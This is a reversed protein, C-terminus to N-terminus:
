ARRVARQMLLVTATLVVVFGEFVLSWVGITEGWNGIDGNANPLGTTRTIVFGLITAASTLGGLIWGRIDRQALLVISMILAAILLMYGFGLYSTEETKGSLESTHIAIVAGIAGIGLLDVLPLRPAASQSSHGPETVHERTRSVTTSM